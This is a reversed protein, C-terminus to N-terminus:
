LVEYHFVDFLVSNGKLSEEWAIKGLVIEIAIFNDTACVDESFHKKETNNIKYYGSINYKYLKDAM